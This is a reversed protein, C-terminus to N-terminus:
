MLWAPSLNSYGGLAGFAGGLICRFLGVVADFGAVTESDSSELADTFSSLQPWAIRVNNM